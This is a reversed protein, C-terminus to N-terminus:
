SPLQNLGNPSSNMPTSLWWILVGRCLQQTNSLWRGRMPRSSMETEAIKAIAVAISPAIKPM